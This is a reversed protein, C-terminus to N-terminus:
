CCCLTRRGRSSRYSLSLCDAHLPLSLSLSADTPVSIRLVRYLLTRVCLMLPSVGEDDQINPDAGCQMLLEVSEINGRRVAVGLPTYGGEGQLNVNAGNAVLAQINRVRNTRAAEHMPGFGAKNTVDLDTGPFEALFDFAANDSVAGFALATNGALDQLNVNARAQVLLEVLGRNGSQTAMHVVSVGEVNVASPNAGGNLLWMFAELAGARAAFHLATAREESTVTEVGAHRAVTMEMLAVSNERAGIHLPTEDEEDSRRVDNMALITEMTTPEGRDLAERLPEWSFAGGGNGFGGMQLRETQALYKEQWSLAEERIREMEATQEELADELETRELELMDGLEEAMSLRQRLDEADGARLADFFVEMVNPDDLCLDQPRAGDVDLVDVCVCVYM